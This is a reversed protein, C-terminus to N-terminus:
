LFGGAVALSVFSFYLGKRTDEELQRPNEKYFKVQKQPVMGDKYMEAFARDPDQFLYELAKLDDMTQKLADVMQQQTLSDSFAELTEKRGNTSQLNEVMKKTEPDQTVADLLAALDVADQSPINPSAAQLTAARSMYRKMDERSVAEIDDSRPIDGVQQENNNLVGFQATCLSPVFLLLILYVLPRKDHLFAM